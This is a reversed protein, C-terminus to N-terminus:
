LISSKSSSLVVEDARPQALPHMSGICFLVEARANRKTIKTTHKPANAANEVRVLPLPPPMTATSLQVGVRSTPAVLVAEAGAGVSNGTSVGVGWDSSVVGTAGVAVGIGGAVGVDGGEGVGVGEAVGVLDAESDVGTGGDPECWYSTM